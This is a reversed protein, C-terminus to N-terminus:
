IGWNKINEDIEQVSMDNNNSQPPEIEKTFGNDFTTIGKKSDRWTYFHSDSVLNGIMPIFSRKAIKKFIWEIFKKYKEKTLEDRHRELFYHIRLAGARWEDGSFYRTKGYKEKYKRQYFKIFHAPGWKNVDDDLSIRSKQAVVKIVTKPPTDSVPDPRNKLRINEERLASIRKKLIYLMKDVQIRDKYLLM